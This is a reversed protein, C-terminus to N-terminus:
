YSGKSTYENIYESIDKFVKNKRRGIKICHSELYFKDTLGFQESNIYIESFRQGRLNSSIRNVFIHIENNIEIWNKGAKIDRDEFSLFYYKEECIDKCNKDVILIRKVGM